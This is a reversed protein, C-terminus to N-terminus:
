EAREGPASSDAGVAARAEPLTEALPPADPGSELSYDENPRQDVETGLFGQATARKGRKHATATAAQADASREAPPANRGPNSDGATDIGARTAASSSESSAAAKKAAPRKKAARKAQPM